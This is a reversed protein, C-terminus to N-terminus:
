KNKRRNLISELIGGAGEMVAGPDDMLIEGLDPLALEQKLKALKGNADFVPGSMKVGVSLSKLLAPSFGSVRDLLRRVDSSWNAADSLPVRTTIENAYIPNAALDIDGSFLLSNRWSGQQTKGVRLAFDRYTLRGKSITARLPDIQAEFGETRGAQLLSLLSALSGSNTLAIEGTELVFAADFKRRDGDLPWALSSLTFRAREKSTVDSFVPNIPTLLQERVEPSLTFTATMPKRPDVKLFGDAISLAPAAVSAFPSDIKASLSGISGPATSLGVAVLDADIADGMYRAVAGRTGALADITAAPFKTAKATADVIPTAKAQGARAVAGRVRADLQLAGAPQAPAAGTKGDGVIRLTLEESLRTAAL